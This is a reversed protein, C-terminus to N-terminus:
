IGTSIHCTRHSLAALHILVALGDAATHLFANIDTSGDATRVIPDIVVLTQQTVCGAHLLVNADGDGVVASAFETLYVTVLGLKTVSHTPPNYNGQQKLPSDTHLFLRHGSRWM